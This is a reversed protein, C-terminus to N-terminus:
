NPYNENTKASIIRLQAKIRENGLHMIAHLQEPESSDSIEERMANLINLMAEKPSVPKYEAMFELMAENVDNLIDALTVTTLHDFELLTKPVSETNVISITTYETSDININLSGSTTLYWSRNPPDFKIENILINLPGEHRGSNILDHVIIAIVLELADQTVWEKVHLPHMAISSPFYTPRLQKYLDESDIDVKLDKSLQEFYKTYTRYRDYTITPNEVLTNDVINEKISKFSIM